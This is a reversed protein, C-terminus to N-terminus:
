GRASRVLNEKSMEGGTLWRVSGERGLVRQAIEADGLGQAALRRVEGIVGELWDAKARLLALADPVLGRHACFVREPELAIAARLSRLLTPIDETDQAVRVKVGLFLDAAFMTRRAADWVVHHDDVHGPMAILELGEPAFPIVPSTLPAPSGWCFRRYYGIPAPARVRALSVPPIAIPFGRRAVLEVNGAHDEHHHTVIVGRPRERDLWGALDAAVGPFGTDILQGRVAFASAEYGLLRSRWSSFRLRTVDDYRELALM